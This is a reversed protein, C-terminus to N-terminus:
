LLSVLHISVSCSQAGSTTINTVDGDRSILFQVTGGGVAILIDTGISFQVDVDSASNGPVIIPITQVLTGSDSGGSTTWEASLSVDGQTESASTSYDVQFGADASIHYIGRQHVVFQNGSKTFYASAGPTSHVLTTFPLSSNYPVSNLLPTTGVYRLAPLSPITGTASTSPLTFIPLSPVTLSPVNFGSNLGGDDPTPPIIISESADGTVINNYTVSPLMLKTKPDWHWTITEPIYLRDIAVNAVTDSQAIIIRSSEQPAIDLNRLNASVQMDMSPFRSNYNAFVNAVLQNLHPQGGLALGQSKEIRGRFSPASGPACAMLAQFTGTINGSYQIGGMEVYSYEDAYIQEIGPENAWDRNTIEMIPTFTGTPNSYARADVEAWLKGQRDAVLKGVLTGRMLNDVADYMSARDADFYQIKYDAGKFEFDSINLVTTHWRFYHYLARRVDMDLLEYWTSPAGTSEVSVSFGVANKMLGTISTATFSVTSHEYDRRLTGKDVYGVFFINSSNPYNGGLSIHNSGYWDDSYLMIVANDDIGMTDFVTFDISQGGESRSGTLDGSAWRVIPTNSGQGIKNRVSVYRYTTDVAGSSSTVILRTVYDGPTNYTVYGPDASTSGTPTGGEFAWNYTLSDGKVNFSGTSSYWVQASGGELIVPRHPGANVFTGLISNQNTYAVDYDKYFIVNEPDSPDQIIRPFVPWLEFYRLVTLYLDNAWAINSNESVIIQSSSASRVRIRGIDKGGPTSGILLTMGAEINLYSGSSVSDFDITRAGRAISANNVQAQFVTRPQFVILNLQTSQPRTRATNLDSPSLQTM